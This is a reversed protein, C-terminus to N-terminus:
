CRRWEPVIGRRELEVFLAVFEPFVVNGCGLNEGGLVEVACVNGQGVWLGVGDDCGVFRRIGNFSCIALGCGVLTRHFLPLLVERM